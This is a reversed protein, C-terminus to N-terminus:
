SILFMHPFTCFVAPILHTHKIESLFMGCGDICIGIEPLSHYHKFSNKEKSSYKHEWETAYSMLPSSIPYECFHDTINSQFQM